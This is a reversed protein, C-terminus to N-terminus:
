TGQERSKPIRVPDSYSCRCVIWEVGTVRRFEAALEEAKRTAEQGDGEVPFTKCRLGAKRLSAQIADHAKYSGDTVPHVSMGPKFKM